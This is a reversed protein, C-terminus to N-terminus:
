KWRGYPEPGGGRLPGCPETRRIILDRSSACASDDRIVRFPAVAPHIVRMRGAGKKINAYEQFSKGISLPEKVASTRNPIKFYVFYEQSELGEDAAFNGASWKGIEKQSCAPHRRSAPIQVQSPM